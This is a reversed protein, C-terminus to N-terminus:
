FQYFSLDWNINGTAASLSQCTFLIETRDTMDYNYGFLRWSLEELLNIRTVPSDVIISWVLKGTGSTVATGATDYEVNGVTNSFTSGTITLPDDPTGYYVKIRSVRNTNVSLRALQINGRYKSFDRYRLAIVPVGEAISTVNNQFGNITFSNTFSPTVDKYISFGLWDFERVGTFTGARKSYFYPRHPRLRSGNAIDGKIDDQSFSHVPILNKGNILGFTYHLNNDTLIYFKQSAWESFYNYGSPNEDSPGTGDIRDINFNSQLITETVDTGSHSTMDISIRISGNSVGIGGDNMKARVDFKIQKGGKEELGFEYDYFITNIDDSYAPGSCTYVYLTKGDRYPFFRVYRSYENNVLHTIALGFESYEITGGGVKLESEYFRQDEPETLGRYNSQYICNAQSYLKEELPNIGINANSNRNIYEATDESAIVFNNSSIQIDTLTQAVIDVNATATPFSSIGLETLGTDVDITQTTNIEQIAPFNSIGIETLGTDVDITQTTSIEQISPFNSIGIETLGTEVDIIQTTNIEQIAPFNSVGIETLGTEVDIIQTTNIEQIPPFNSVGIETLGTDVDITQTTNIEQIAPFNSVGIETLGTDVNITQTTNIEQIAPFNSIGIETM